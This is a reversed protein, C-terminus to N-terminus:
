WNSRNSRSFSLGLALEFFEAGLVLGELGFEFGLELLARDFLVNGLQAQALIDFGTGVPIGIRQAMFFWRSNLLRVQSENPSNTTKPSAMKPRM